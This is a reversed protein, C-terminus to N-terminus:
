SIARSIIERIERRHTEIIERIELEDEFVNSSTRRAKLLYRITSAELKGVYYGYLFDLENECKWIKKIRPYMTKLENPIDKIVSKVYEDVSKRIDSDRMKQDLELIRFCLDKTSEFNIESFNSAILTVVDQNNDAEQKSLKIM